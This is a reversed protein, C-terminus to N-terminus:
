CGDSEREPLLRLSSPELTLHITEGVPPVEEDAEFELKLEVGEGVAITSQQYRGRFSCSIVKGTVLNLAIARDEGTAAVHGADPRVLLLGEALGAPPPDVRLEGLASSVVPPQRQVLRAPLLNSMGIFEAVFPTAPQRYLEVPSDVQEICGHSMVVVRDSVTFAEEQDHTVYISTTANGAAVRTLISRLDAALRERLARDLAGLPEDLLLLRAGPALARALAVRQQEGGSLEYVRREGFGPLGVLALLEEVRASIREKRWGLMRLGFAINEAVDKHPFLAYDQFVMGFGREHVPIATLDEGELLLEGSDPATLGAIIRLLTTKGSGSPGLLAVVEGAEIELSISHLVPEGDFSKEVNRISLM